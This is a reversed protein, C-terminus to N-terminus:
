IMQVMADHGPGTGVWSVPVGVNKEIFNLYKIANKPLDEKRRVKSTDTMWGDLTEYVVEVQQLETLSGPVM